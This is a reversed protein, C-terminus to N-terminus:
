PLEEVPTMIGDPAGPVGRRPRRSPLFTITLCAAGGVVAFGVGIMYSLGAREALFM